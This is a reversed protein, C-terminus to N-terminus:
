NKMILVIHHNLVGHFKVTYPQFWWKIEDPTFFHVHDPNNDPKSPVSLIIYKNTLALIKKVFAETDLVHEMVELVTVVDFTRQFELQIIDGEVAQYNDYTRTLPKVLGIRYPVNDVSTIELDPFQELLPCLFNFRGIGIDLINQPYLGKLIGLVKTIRPLLVKRKFYKREFLNDPDVKTLWEEGFRGILYQEYIEQYINNM